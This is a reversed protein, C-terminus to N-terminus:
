KWTVVYNGIFGTGANVIIGRPAEVDFTYTGATPLVPFTAITTSATDTTSTANWITFTGVPSTSAVVVSGLMGYSTKLQKHIGAFGSGAATTTAYYGQGDAVSGLNVKNVQTGGLFVLVATLITIIVKKM